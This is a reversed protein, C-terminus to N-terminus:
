ENLILHLSYKDVLGIYSVLCLFNVHVMYNYIHYFLIIFMCYLVIGLYDFRVIGHLFPFPPIRKKHIHWTIECFYKRAMRFLYAMSFKDFHDTKTAYFHKACVIREIEHEMRNIYSLTSRLLTCPLESEVTWWEVRQSIACNKAKGAMATRPANIQVDYCKGFVTFTSWHTTPASSRNNNDM